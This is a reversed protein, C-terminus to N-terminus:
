AWGLLMCLVIGVVDAVADLTDPEDDICEKMFGFALTLAAAIVVSVGAHCMVDCLMYSIGMHAFRDTGIRDQITKICKSVIKM